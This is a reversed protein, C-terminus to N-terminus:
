ATDIKKVWLLKEPYDIQGLLLCRGEKMTFAEVIPKGECAYCHIGHLKDVFDPYMKCILKFLGGAHLEHPVSLWLKPEEYLEQPSILGM